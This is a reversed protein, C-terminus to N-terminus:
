LRLLPPNLQYRRRVVKWPQQANGFQAEVGVLRGLTGRRRAADVWAFITDLSNTSESAIGGRWRLRYRTM